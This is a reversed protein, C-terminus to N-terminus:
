VQIYGEVFSKETESFEEFKMRNKVFPAFFM